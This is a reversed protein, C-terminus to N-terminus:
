FNQAKQRDFPYRIWEFETFQNKTFQQTVRRLFCSKQYPKKQKDM